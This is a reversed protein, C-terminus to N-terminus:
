ETFLPVFFRVPSASHGEDFEERRKRILRM